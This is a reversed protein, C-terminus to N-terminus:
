CIAVVLKREATVKKTQLFKLQAVIQADLKKM